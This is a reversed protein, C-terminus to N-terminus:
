PETGEPATGHLDRGLEDEFAGQLSWLRRYPGEKQLLERHTGAQVIRGRDLVVIREAHLVSSLRHAILITTRRGRRRRLADLIRSETQTDVASLADDLVLIPPDKLLARALAVRQRQGGSLTVGREGVLTEYGHEFEEISGHICADGASDVMEKHSADHRGVRLNAGVTRSYLFPEQLVCGIQSRVFGRELERLEHGDLRISGKEYDYLRLLLQILTSKGSGPAGLLALSEGAEVRLSIDSLAAAESGFAFSLGDIELTGSLAAPRLGGASEPEQALVERIRGLSVMAKGTDMLVRGMHRVPWIVMSVYLMFALLDGVVLTGDRVWVAGALLVLGIQMLCLLDSSAWFNGLMRILRYNRDRFETNRRGFKGREFDQRAFARVVRIGTLNEQLVATMAAEAEETELFLARVRRFFFVAGALIPPFLAVSVLAMRADIVLLIPLVTVLLLVARAIEVVQAALFVRVTEVDSSCRQVLDGTEAGDYYTCPLRELHAYLRDRLRRVIAESAIAAWRGRVYQFAGAVGTLAVAAGAYLWLEQTTLSRATVGKIVAASILPVGFLFVNGLGMAVIAAGYRLRQGQMLGWLTQRETKLM